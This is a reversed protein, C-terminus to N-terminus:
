RKWRCRCAPGPFAPLTRNAAASRHCPLCNAPRGESCLSSGNTVQSSLMSVYRRLDSVYAVPSFQPETFLEPKFWLPLSSDLTLSAAQSTVAEV